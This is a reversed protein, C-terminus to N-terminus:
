LGADAIPPNHTAPGAPRVRDQTWMGAVAWKKGERGEAAM